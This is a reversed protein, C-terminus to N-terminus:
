HRSGCDPSLITGFERNSATAHKETNRHLSAALNRACNNAARRTPLGYTISKTM